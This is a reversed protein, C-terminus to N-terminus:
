YAFNLNVGFRIIPTSYFSSAPFEEFSYDYFPNKLKRTSYRKNDPAINEAEGTNLVNIFQYAVGLYFDLIVKRKRSQALKILWGYKVGLENIIESKENGFSQFVTTEDGTDEVIMDGEANLHRYQYYGSIYRRYYGDELSAMRYFKYETLLGFGGFRKISPQLHEPFNTFPNISYAPWMYYGVEGKVARNARLGFEMNVVPGKVNSWILNNVSVGIMNPSSSAYSQDQASTYQVSAICLLIILLRSM